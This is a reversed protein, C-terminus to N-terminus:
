AHVVYIHLMPCAASGWAHALPRCTILVSSRVGTLFAEERDRNREAAEAPASPTTLYTARRESAGPKM